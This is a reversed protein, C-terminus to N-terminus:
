IHFLGTEGVVLSSIFKIDYLEVYENQNSFLSITYCIFLLGSMYLAYNMKQESTWVWTFLQRFKNPMVSAVPFNVIFKKQLTQFYSLLIHSIVIALQYIVTIASSAYSNKARTMLVCNMQEVKHNKKPASNCLCALFTKTGLIIINQLYM